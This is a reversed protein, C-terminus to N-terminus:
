QVTTETVPDRGGPLKADPPRHYFARAPAAEADASAGLDALAAMDFTAVDVDVRGPGALMAAGTGALKATEGGRLADIAAAAEAIPALTPENAPAGDRYTRWVVEGRKADHVVILLEHAGVSAALADLCSIGVAPVGLALALGRAFAV